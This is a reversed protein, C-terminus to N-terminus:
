FCYVKEASSLQRTNEHLQSSPTNEREEGFQLLMTVAITKCSVYNFVILTRGYVMDHYSVSFIGFARIVCFLSMDPKCYVTRCDPGPSIGFSTLHLCYVAFDPLAPGLYSDCVHFRSRQSKVIRQYQVIFPYDDHCHKRLTSFSLAMVM